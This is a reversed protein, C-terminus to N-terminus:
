VPDRFPTVLPKRVSGPAMSNFPNSQVGSTPETRIWPHLDFGLFWKRLPRLTSSSFEVHRACM